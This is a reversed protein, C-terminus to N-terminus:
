RERSIKNWNSKFLNQLKKAEELKKEGSKIAKVLEIVNNFDDFRKRSTNSKLYIILDNQKIEDTLEKIEDFRDSINKLVIKQDDDQNTLAALIKNQNTICDKRRKRKQEETTKTQKEFATELPSYTFIAQEIIQRQNSYKKVQM